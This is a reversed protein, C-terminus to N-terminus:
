QLRDDTVWANRKSARIGHEMIPRNRRARTFCLKRRVSSDTTDLIKAPRPFHAAIQPRVFSPITM